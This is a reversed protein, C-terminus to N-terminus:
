FHTPRKKRREQIEDRKKEIKELISNSNRVAEVLNHNSIVDRTASDLVADLRPSPVWKM